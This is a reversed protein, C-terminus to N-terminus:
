YATFQRLEAATNEPERGDADAMSGDAAPNHEYLADFQQTFNEIPRAGSIRRVLRIDTRGPETRAWFFSPTGRVRLRRGLATDDDVRTKHRGSTMCDRFAPLDIGVAQAHTELYEAAIAKQQRYLRDRFAAYRGQENVCHAAEAAARAHHHRPDIVTDIFVYRLKGTEIYRKRLAPMTDLWHRRCYPCEFSAIEVIVLQADEAGLTPRADIDVYRVTSGVGQQTKRAVAMLREFESQTTNARSAGLGPSDAAAAVAWVPCVIMLALSLCFAASSSAYPRLMEWWSLQPLVPQLQQHRRQIPNRLRGKM